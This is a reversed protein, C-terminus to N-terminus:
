LPSRLTEYSRLLEKEREHGPFRAFVLIAGTTIAVAAVGILAALVAAPRRPGSQLTM